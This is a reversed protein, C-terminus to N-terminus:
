QFKPEQGGAPEIALPPKQHEELQQEAREFRSRRPLDM